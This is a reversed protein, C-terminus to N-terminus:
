GCEGRAAADDRWEDAHDLTPVRVPFVYCHYSNKAYVNRVCELVTFPIGFISTEFNQHENLNDNVHDLYSVLTSCGGRESNGIRNVFRFM